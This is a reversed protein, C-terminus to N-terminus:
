PFRCLVLKPKLDTTNWVRKGSWNDTGYGGVRKCTFGKTIGVEIWKDKKYILGQRPLEILTEFGLVQDGYKTYWDKTIEERWCQIVKTAFNRLPYKKNNSEEFISTKDNFNPEIHYFINNIINNLSINNFFENRGPLFKTASGGVIYGYLKTNCYIAYCISRGVFGKPKSYHNSMCIQLRLDFKQVVCLNIDFKM